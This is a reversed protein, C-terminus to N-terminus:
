NNCWGQDAAQSHDRLAILLAVFALLCQLLSVAMFIVGYEGDTPLFAYAYAWVAAGIALANALACTCRSLSTSALRCAVHLLAYPAVMCALLITLGGYDISSSLNLLSKHRIAAAVSYLAAAFLLHPSRLWAM